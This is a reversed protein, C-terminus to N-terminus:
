GRRARGRTASTRAGQTRSTRAAGLKRAIIRKEERGPWLDRVSKPLSSRVHDLKRSSLLRFVATAAQDPLIDFFGRLVLPLQAGLDLAEDRGLRDRLAGLGGILLTLTQLPDTWGTQRMLEKIWLNTNQVSTDFVSETSPREARESPVPVDIPVGDIEAREIAAKMRTSDLPLEESPRFELLVPPWASSWEDMDQTLGRIAQFVATVAQRPEVGAVRGSVRALFEKRSVPPTSRPTWGEYYMGRIIAPLRNALKVAEEFPLSDRLAQLVARLASCAQESERRPLAAAAEEMWRNAEDVARALVDSGDPNSAPNM